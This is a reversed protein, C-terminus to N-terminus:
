SILRSVILNHSSFILVYIANCIIKVANKRIYQKKRQIKLREQLHKILKPRFKKKIIM